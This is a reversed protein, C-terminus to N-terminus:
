SKTELFNAQYISLMPINDNIVKYFTVTHQLILLFNELATSPYNSTSEEPLENVKSVEDVGLAVNAIADQFVVEDSALWGNSPPSLYCKMLCVLANVACELSEHRIGLALESKGNIACSMLLVCKWTVSMPTVSTLSALISEAVCQSNTRAILAFVLKENALVELLCPFPFMIAQLLIGLAAAALIIPVDLDCILHVM